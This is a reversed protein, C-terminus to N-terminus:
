FVVKLQSCQFPYLDPFNKLFGIHEGIQPLDSFNWGSMQIPGSRYKHSLPIINDEELEKLTSKYEPVGFIDTIKKASYHKLAM